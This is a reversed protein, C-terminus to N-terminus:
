GMVITIEATQSGTGAVDITKHTADIDELGDAYMFQVVAGAPVLFGAGIALGNSAGVSFTMAAAGLNKIRLIQLKLGNGDVSAGNTGTLARLDITAAGATLTLLFEAVTTVPPSSGSNLTGSENYQDHIVTRKLDSASGTNNPLIETATATAAWVVEVAGLVALLVLGTAVALAFLM